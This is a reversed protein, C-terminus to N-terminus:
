VGVARIINLDGSITRVRLEGVPAAADVPPTDDLGLESSMTGSVSSADVYLRQGPKVALEVDGSVSQVRISDGAAARVQVDGSVTTVSLGASADEVHLDGSVLNASLPGEARGLSVDGSATRLESAGNVVRARVDGSAADVTLRSVSDVTVDGSATKVEVAGLTGATELDASGTRLALDSGEPCRVRVGVKPGRGLTLGAKRKLDVIVEHGAGRRSMEVRAEEIVQRTIDNDRLPILEVDVRPESSTEVGVEGGDLNVRLLVPGPTDFSTV